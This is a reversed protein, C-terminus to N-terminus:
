WGGNKLSMDVNKQCMGHKESIDVNRQCMGHKEPCKCDNEPYRCFHGHETDSFSERLTIM